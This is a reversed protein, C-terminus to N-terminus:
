TPEGSAGDTITRARIQDQQIRRERRTSRETLFDFIGVSKAYCTSSYAVYGSRLFVVWSNGRKELNMRPRTM